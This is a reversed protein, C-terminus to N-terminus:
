SALMRSQPHGAMRSNFVPTRLIPLASGPPAAPHSIATSIAASWHMYARICAVYGGAHTSASIGTPVPAKGIGWERNGVGPKM